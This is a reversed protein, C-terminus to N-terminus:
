VKEPRTTSWLLLVGFSLGAALCCLADCLTQRFSSHHRSTQRFSVSIESPQRQKEWIGQAANSTESRRRVSPPTETPSFCIFVLKLFFCCCFFLVLCLKGTSSLTVGYAGLLVVFHNTNCVTPCKKVLCLLLSVLAEALVFFYTRMLISAPFRWIITGKRWEVELQGKALCLSPEEHSDLMTPLFLSHSSAMMHLTSLPILDKQVEGGCYM